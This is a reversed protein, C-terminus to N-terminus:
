TVFMDFVSSVVLVIHVSCALVKCVCACMSLTDLLDHYLIEVLKWSIESWLVASLATNKFRYIGM